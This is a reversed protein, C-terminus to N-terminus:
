IGKRYTKVIGTIKNFKNWRIIKVTPFNSKIYVKFRHWIDYSLKANVKLKDTILHDIFCIDGDIDDNVTQWMNDRVFKDEDTERGIYFTLFCVLREGEFFPILRERELMKHYYATNM